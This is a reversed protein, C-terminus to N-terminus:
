WSTCCASSMGTRTRGEVTTSCWTLRRSHSETTAVNDEIHHMLLSAVNNGGNKAVDETYNYAYLNDKTADVAGFIYANMASYYYTAGPQESAFNPIQMNQVYDAVFCLACETPPLEVTGKAELKKDQYLERQQQAMKVHRAADKVLQEGALMGETRNDIDNAVEQQPPGEEGEEAESKKRSAYKYRNAYIYCENCIDERSGAIILKPHNSHWFRHFSRWSIQWLQEKGTLATGWATTGLGLILCLANKCILVQTGPLLYSMKWGPQGRQYGNGVIHDGDYKIWERLLTQQETKELLGYGYLYEVAAVMEPESLQPDALCNCSIARTAHKQDICGGAKQCAFLWHHIWNKYYERNYHVGKAKKHDQRVRHVAVVPCKPSGGEEVEWEGGEETAAVAPIFEM